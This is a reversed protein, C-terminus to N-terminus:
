DTSQQGLSNTPFMDVKILPHSWEGLGSEKFTEILAVKVKRYAFARTKLGRYYPEFCKLEVGLPANVDEISTLHPCDKMKEKLRQYHTALSKKALRSMARAGTFVSGKQGTVQEVTAATGDLKLYWNHSISKNKLEKNNSKADSPKYLGLKHCNLRYLKLLSPDAKAIKSKLTTENIRGFLGRSMNEEHFLDSVILSDLYIPEVFTSLLAGQVGVVNWMAIKDSCTMFKKRHEGSEIEEMAPIYENNSLALNDQVKEIKSRLCGKQRSNEATRSHDWQLIRADGCPPSSIYLHLRLHPKLRFGKGSPSPELILDNSDAGDGGNQAIQHLNEYLFCLFARRAVVEAHSDMVVEGNEKINDSTIWKTGTGMSIVRVALPNETSTVVFAALMFQKDASEPLSNWRNTVATYVLQAQTLILNQSLKTMFNVALRCANSLAANRSPGVGSFLAFGFLEIDLFCTKGDDSEVMDMSIVKLTSFPLQDYWDDFTKRAPKEEAFVQYFCDAAIKANNIFSIAEKKAMDISVTKEQNEGKVVALTGISIFTSYSPNDGGVPNDVPPVVIIKVTSKETIELLVQDDTKESKAIESYTTILSYLEKLQPLHEDSQLAIKKFKCPPFNTESCSRKVSVKPSTKQITTKGNKVEEANEKGQDDIGSIKELCRIWKTAVDTEANPGKETITILHKIKIQASNPYTKFQMIFKHETSCLTAFAVPTFKKRYHHKHFSAVLKALSELYRVARKAVANKAKPEILDFCEFTVNLPKFVIKVQYRKDALRVSSVAIDIPVSPKLELIMNMNKKGQTHVGNFRKILNRWVTLNQKDLEDDGQLQNDGM